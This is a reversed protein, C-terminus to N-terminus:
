GLGFSSDLGLEFGFGVSIWVRICAKVRGWVDVGFKFRDDNSNAGSDPNTNPDAAPNTDFNAKPNASYM